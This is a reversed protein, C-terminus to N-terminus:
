SPLSVMRVSLPAMQGGGRAPDGKRGFREVVDIELPGSDPRELRTIEAQREREGVAAAPDQRMRASAGMQQARFRQKMEIEPIRGDGAHRPRELELRVIQDSGPSHHSPAVVKLLDLRRSADRPTIVIRIRDPAGEKQEFLAALVAAGADVKEIFLHLSPHRPAPRVVRVKRQRLRILGARDLKGGIWAVSERTVPSLSRAETQDPGRGRGRLAQLDRLRVPHDCTNLERGVANRIVPGCRAPRSAKSVAFRRREGDDDRYVPIQGCRSGADVARQIREGARRARGDDDHIIRRGLGVDLVQEILEGGFEADPEQGVLVIKAKDARDVPREALGAGAVDHQQIRVRDHRFVRQM